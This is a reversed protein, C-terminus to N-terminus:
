SPCAQRFSPTLLSSFYAPPQPLRKLLDFDHEGPRDSVYVSCGGVSRAVAHLTAVENKSQPMSHALDFSISSPLFLAVFFSIPLPLPALNYSCSSVQFMDWDPQAIEGIFLSNYAVNAVHVTHSAPDRPWFDDSARAVSTVNYSYLCETPHCMCNICNMDSGFHHVVSKEMAQRFLCTLTLSNTPHFAFRFLGVLRQLM